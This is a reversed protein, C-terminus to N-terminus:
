ASGVVRNRCELQANPGFNDQFEGTSGEEILPALNRAQVVESEQDFPDFWVTDQNDRMVFANAAPQEAVLDNGQFPRILMEGANDGVIGPVGLREPNVSSYEVIAVVTLTREGVHVPGNPELGVLGTEVDRPRQQLKAPLM